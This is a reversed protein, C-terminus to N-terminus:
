FFFSWNSCNFHFKGTACKDLTPTTWLEEGTFMACVVIIQIIEDDGLENNMADRILKQLEKLALEAQIIFEKALRSADTDKINLYM